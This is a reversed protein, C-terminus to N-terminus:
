LPVFVSKHEKYFTMHKYSRIIPAFQKKIESIIGRFDELTKTQIEIELDDGGLVENDYIINPHQKVYTRFRKIDKREANQLNIHLKFYQYGLKELDFLTRYGVIVNKKEMTRIRVAVTKPTMGIKQAIEVVSKRADSALLKLIAIDKEDVDGSGDMNPETIFIYEADNKEKGLLYARPFYSVKTFISLSRKEVYNHYKELFEKWLFNMESIDKVLIWMGIGYEGDISVLWAVEKKQKFYELIEIEKEPTANLLAIYLRFSIYGIKGVDIVTHFQQIVGENQLRSIRYKIADKSLGIKKALSQHTQRSDVDLEALLKWDKRDLKIM